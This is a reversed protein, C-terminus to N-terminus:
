MKLLENRKFHNFTLLDKEFPCLYILVHMFCVRTIRQHKLAHEIGRLDLQISVRYIYDLLPARTLHHEELAVTSVPYLLTNVPLAMCWDLLCLLLSVIFQFLFLGLWMFKLRKFKVVHLLLCCFHGQM